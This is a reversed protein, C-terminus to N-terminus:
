RTHPIQLPLKEEVSFHFRRLDAYVKFFTFPMNYSLLCIIRGIRISLVIIYNDAIQPAHPANPMLTAGVFSVSIM